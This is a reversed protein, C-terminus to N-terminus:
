VEEVEYESDSLLWWADLAEETTEGVYDGDVYVSYAQALVTCCEEHYVDGDETQIIGDFEKITEHCALCKKM